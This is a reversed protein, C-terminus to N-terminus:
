FKFQVGSYVGVTYPRFSGATDSFTNLQYKFVPEVNLQINQTFKYNVGLGINTSFNVDNVNNASGLNTVLGESELSVSNDVLFLSSVGGIINIGVKKDLLSYNLEVPVEVYGLQQVMRGNLLNSPVSFEQATISNSVDEQVAGAVNSRVVLNRSSQSYNINDIIESTPAQLSSSFSIENTDYGFDVRHVGSRVSLKKSVNYSVTLGYSLNLNGSKSNQTFNSHIPSGEGSADFYVPAVSPGMAWRNYSQKEKSEKDDDKAEAIADFISKKDNVLPNTQAAEKEEPKAEVITTNNPTVEENKKTQETATVLTETAGNEKIPIDSFRQNGEAKRDIAEKKTKSSEQAVESVDSKLPTQKVNPTQSQRHYANTVENTPAVGRLSGKSGNEQTKEFSNDKVKDKETGVLPTNQADQDLPSGNKENILERNTDNPMVSETNRTDTIIQEEAGDLNDKPIFVYMLIALLAAAGGLSWWIPIVRKKKKKDLSAQIKAWVKDDPKAEFSEFEKQFLKDLNKKEM